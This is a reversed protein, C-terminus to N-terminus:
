TDFPRRPPRQRSPQYIVAVALSFPLAFALGVWSGSYIAGFLFTGYAFLIPARIYWRPTTSGDVARELGYTRTDRRAWAFLSVFGALAALLAIAGIIVSQSHPGAGFARVLGYITLALLGIVVCCAALARVRYGLVDTRAEQANAEV